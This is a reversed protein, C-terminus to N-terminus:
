ATLVREILYGERVGYKCVELLEADMNNMLASLILGGPTLTHIREASAKLARHAFVDPNSRCLNLIERIGAVTMSKPRVNEGFVQAHMKATARVSGGIGYLVTSRYANPDPLAALHTCFTSEITDMESPSPLIARVFTAYSSLSGQPISVNNFDRGSEIRTLETSGGGIDVLTGQEITRDCTAGVFGLHAEDRASLLSLTLGTATEITAVADTCNSANRLVATAFVDIRKDVGAAGVIQAGLLRDTARDAVAKIVMEKGGLYEQKDPKSNHCVVPDYGAERAERESLGTQGVALGLVRFIGTGLTGRYALTGGTACDGAIRGTKNATSGLPRYVPKGTV